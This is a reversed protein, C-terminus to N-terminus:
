ESLKKIPVWVEYRNGDENRFNEREILMIQSGPEDYRVYGEPILVTKAYDLCQGHGIEMAKEWTPVWETTIVIFERVPFKRLTFGEPVKDVGDVISGIFFIEQEPNINHAVEMMWYEKNRYPNITNMGGSKFFDGWVAGFDSSDLPYERGLFLFEEHQMQFVKIATQDTESM